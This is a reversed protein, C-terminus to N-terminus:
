TEQKNKEAPIHTEIGSSDKQAALLSNRKKQRCRLVEGSDLSVDSCRSRLWFIVLAESTRPSSWTSNIQLVLFCHVLPATFDLRGSKMDVRVCNKFIKGKAPLKQTLSGECM